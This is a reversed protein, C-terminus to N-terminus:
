ASRRTSQSEYTTGWYTLSSDAILRRNANEDFCLLLFSDKPRSSTQKQQHWCHGELRMYVILRITHVVLPWVTWSAQSGDYVQTIFIGIRGGIQHILRQPWTARKVSPTPRTFRLDRTRIGDIALNQGLSKKEMIKQNEVCLAPRAAQHQRLLPSPRRVQVM